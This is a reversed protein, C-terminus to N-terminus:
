NGQFVKWVKWGVFDVQAGLFVSVAVIAEDLPERAVLLELADRGRCEEVSFVFGNSFVVDSKAEDLYLM